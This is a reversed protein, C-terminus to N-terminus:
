QYVLWDGQQFYFALTLASGMAVILPLWWVTLCIFGTHMAFFTNAGDMAYLRRRWYVYVGSAILLGLLVGGSIVYISLATFDTVVRIGEDVGYVVQPQVLSVAIFALVFYGGLTLISGYLWDTVTSLPDVVEETSDVVSLGKRGKRLLFHRRDSAPAAQDHRWSSLWWYLLLLLPLLHFFQVEYVARVQGWYLFGSPIGMRLHLFAILLNPLAFLVALVALMITLRKRSQRRPRTAVFRGQYALRVALACFAVIFPVTILAWWGIPDDTFGLVEFPSGQWYLLGNGFALVASLLAVALPQLRIATSLNKAIRNNRNPEDM